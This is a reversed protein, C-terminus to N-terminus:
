ALYGLHDMEKRHAAVIADAQATTLQDRWTGAKGSVFFVEAHPSRERFKHEEEQRQLKDFSSLEIADAIQGPTASQGLHRVIATFM